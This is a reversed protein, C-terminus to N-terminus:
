FMMMQGQAGEVPDSSLREEFAERTLIKVDALARWLRFRSIKFAKLSESLAPQLTAKYAILSVRGGPVVLIGPTSAFQNDRIVPAVLASALVAFAFAPAGEHEWLLWRGERRTRYKLRAGTAEVLSSIARLDQQRQAAQDEERLQWIGEHEDAYSSLIAEITRRAPTFLGPLGGCVEDEIELLEVRQKKQLHTVALVEARDTVSEVPPWDALGWTGAEVSEGTSHHVFRGDQTLAIEIGARIQRLETEMDLGERHLTHAEALMQIAATKMHLYSAPEGRMTLYEYMAQRVATEDPEHIERRLREGREWLFQVPDDETRLALGKLDFGAGSIATVASLLFQPELEPLLGFFPTGLALLEALHTFASHLATANWSWDYRRRRLAMRYPEVASRGWLWGAWLASFTWFAQNPRPVSGIVAAIPIEKRVEDALNKLRGEYICIGGPEPLKNPWTAQAVRPGADPWLQHAGDLAMWLNPERFEDPTSLQKPRPRQEPHGWLTNGADCAVLVSAILARQRRPTLGLTELRSIITTLVYLARPLYHQLAEQVHFREPDDKAAVRELARSRHLADTEAVKRAREVDEVTAEREGSDNCEKCEYIRAFPADAGKRWVFATAQIERGCQQCRTLYLSQLHTELREDGRKSAGLEALAAKFDAEAPPDLALDLLFRTVPNNVTVLVRFGARAAELPLRPSFGFPDLLWSSPEANRSLWTGVTGQELPPLFRSLPGAVEPGLGPIYPMGDMLATYLRGDKQGGQWKM